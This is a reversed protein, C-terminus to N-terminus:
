FFLSYTYTHARTRSIYLISLNGHIKEIDEKIFSISKDLFLSRVANLAISYEQNYSFIKESDITEDLADQMTVYVGLFVM